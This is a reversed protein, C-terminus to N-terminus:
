SPSPSLMYVMGLLKKRKSFLSGFTVLFPKYFHGLEEVIL